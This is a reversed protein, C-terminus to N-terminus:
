YLNFNNDDYINTNNHNLINNYIDFFNQDDFHDNINIQSHNNNKLKVNEHCIDIGTNHIFDNEYFNFFSFNENELVTEDSYTDFESESHENLDIKLIDIKVQNTKQNDKLLNDQVNSECLSKRSSKTKYNSFNEKQASKGNEFSVAVQTQFQVTLEINKELDTKIETETETKTKTEKEKTTEMEKVKEISLKKEKQIEKEKEKTTEMEKVKEKEVKLVYHFETDKGITDEGNQTLTNYLVSCDNNCCNEFDEAQHKTILQLNNELFNFDEESLLAEQLITQSEKNSSKHDTYRDLSLIKSGFNDKTRKQTTQEKEQEKHNKKEKDKEMKQEKEISLKKAHRRTKAKQNQNIVASVALNKRRKINKHHKIKIITKTRKRKKQFLMPQENKTKLKDYFEKKIYSREFEKKKLRSFRKKQFYNDIAKTVGQRGQKFAVCLLDILEKKIFVQNYNEDNEKCSTLFLTSFNTSYSQFRKSLNQGLSKKLINKKKEDLKHFLNLEQKTPKYFGQPAKPGTRKHINSM